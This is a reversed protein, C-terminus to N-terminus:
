KRDPPDYETRVSRARTTSARRRASIAVFLVGSPTDAIGSAALAGPNTKASSVPKDEVSVNIGFLLRGFVVFDRPLTRTAVFRTGTSSLVGLRPPLMHADFCVNVSM